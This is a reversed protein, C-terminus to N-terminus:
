CWTEKCEVGMIKEMSSVVANVINQQNNRISMFITTMIAGITLLVLTFRIFEKKSM